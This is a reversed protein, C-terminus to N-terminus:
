ESGGRGDLPAYGRAALAFNEGLAYAVRVAAQSAGLQGGAALSPRGRGSRAFLYAEATWRGASPARPVAVGVPPPAPRPRPAVERPPSREIGGPDGSSATGTGEALALSQPRAPWRSATAGPRKPAASVVRPWAVPPAVGAAPPPLGPRAPKDPVASRQPPS